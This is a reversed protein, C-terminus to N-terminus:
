LNNEYWEITKRIGSEFTYIPKFNLETKIRETSCARFPITTPKSNDWEVKPTKGTVKLITDVIDGITVTSGYGLNYPRMSIGDELVLLAGKVVDEVYLFDRVVDSSGWVVFPDEGSLARKILAPVVHCTKLDFNDHPGFIATGRAIGIHIDSLHSAHEVLKERYRRMWGYGYYSIYPEGDWYEYETVEHKVDPYGTSSNLDLFGKVNTKVCAELVNTIVNIQNLSLQFDTAISSPHGIYGACHVVYDAGDILKMADDLKTLDINELVEIRDDQIKLPNKHISTRVNAGRELLEQIFHTGVFGSGGTVVVKKNKYLNM